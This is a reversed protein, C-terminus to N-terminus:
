CSISKVSSIDIGVNTIKKGGPIDTNSRTGGNELKNEVTQATARHLVTKPAPSVAWFIFPL